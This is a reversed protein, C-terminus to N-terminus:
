PEDHHGKESNEDDTNTGIFVIVDKTIGGYFPDAAKDGVFVYVVQEKMPFNRHDRGSIQRLKWFPAVSLIPHKKM